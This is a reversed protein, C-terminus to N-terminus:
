DSKKSDDVSHNSNSKGGVFTAVATAHAMSITAIPRANVVGQKGQHQQQQVQHQVQQEQQQHRRKLFEERFERQEKMRKLRRRLDGVVGRLNSQEAKVKEM